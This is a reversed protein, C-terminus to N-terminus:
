VAPTPTVAADKREFMPAIWFLLAGLAFIAVLIGVFFDVVPILLVLETGASFRARIRVPLWGWIFGIIMVSHFMRLVGLLVSHALLTRSVRLRSLGALPSGM